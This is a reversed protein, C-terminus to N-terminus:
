FLTVNECLEITTQNNQVAIFMFDYQFDHNQYQSNQLFKQSTTIIRNLQAPRVVESVECFQGLRSKVEIFHVINNKIAIIDIEGGKVKYNHKIIKYGNHTLFHCADKEATKGQKNINSPGLVKM